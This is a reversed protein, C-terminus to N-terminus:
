KDIIDKPANEMELYETLLDQDFLLNKRYATVIEKAKAMEKQELYASILEINGSQFDPKYQYLKELASRYKSNDNMQKYCLSRYYDLFPDGQLMQDLQDVCTLVKAYEGKLFYADIMLLPMNTDKPFLDRYEELTKVYLEDNGMSSTIEIKLQMFTKQKRVAPTLLQYAEYADEFKGASILDRIRSGGSIDELDYKKKELDKLVRTAIVSLSEGATYILMDEAKVREARKILTYDYYNLGGDAYYVRFVLHHKGNREYQHVLDFLSGNKFDKLIENGIKRKEIGEAFRRRDTATFRVGSVKEMKKCLAEIDLFRNLFEPNKNIVSAHITKAIDDAEAKSVAKEKPTCSVYFLSILSLFFLFSAKKM